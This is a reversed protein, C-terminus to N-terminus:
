SIRGRIRSWLIGVYEHVVSRWIVLESSKPIISHLLGRQVRTGKFDCPGPIADINQYNFLGLSRRMHNASTVLIMGEDKVINRILAAQQETDMAEDETIIRNSDFGMEEVAAKMLVALAPQNYFQGGSLVLSAQPHINAIRMGEILRTITSSGLQQSAPKMQSYQAGSSLVVIYKVEVVEQYAYPKYDAELSGIALNALPRNSLLLLLVVGATLWRRAIIRNEPKRMYLLGILLLLLAFPVPYLFESFVKKLTFMFDM